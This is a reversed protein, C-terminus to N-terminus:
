YNGANSQIREQNALLQAQREKKAKEIAAEQIFATSILWHRQTRTVRVEEERKAMEADKMAQYILIDQVEKKELEKYQQKRQIAAHCPCILDVRESLWRCSVRM